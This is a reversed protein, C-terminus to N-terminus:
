ESTYHAIKQLVEALTEAGYRGRGKDSMIAKLTDYGVGLRRAAVEVSPINNKKMWARVETNYGRRASATDIPISKPILRRYSEKEWHVCRIRIAERERNGILPEIEAIGRYVEWAHRDLGRLFAMFSKQNALNTVLQVYAGAWIDLIEIAVKLREPSPM